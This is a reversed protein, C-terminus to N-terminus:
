IIPKIGIITIVIFTQCEPTLSKMHKYISRHKTPATDLAFFLVLDLYLYSLRPISMYWLNIGGEVLIKPIWFIQPFFTFVLIEM